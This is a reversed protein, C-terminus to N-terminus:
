QPAKSYVCHHYPHERILALLGRFSAIQQGVMLQSAGLTAGLYLARSEGAGAEAARLVRGAM